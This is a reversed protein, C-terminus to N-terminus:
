ARRGKAIFADTWVQKGQRTHNMGYSHKVSVDVL